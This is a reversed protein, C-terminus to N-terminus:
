ENIIKIVSSCNIEHDKLKDEKLSYKKNEYFYCKEINKNYIIKIFGSPIVIKKKNLNREYKEYKKYKNKTWPKFNKRKKDRELIKSIPLKKLYNNKNKYLVINLVSVHKKSLALEREKEEAKIWIKQNLEPVQPVINAMTYVKLLIKNDYDFDADPAMHGRDYGTNIYDSPYVRYKKPISKEAYFRPRKNINKKNINKGSLNYFVYRPGKVNYDYGITIVKKQITKSIPIEKMISNIDFALLNISLLFITLIKNKM